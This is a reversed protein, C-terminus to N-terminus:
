EAMFGGICLGGPPSGASGDYVRSRRYMTYRPGKSSELLDFLLESHDREDNTHDHPQFAPTTFNSALLYVCSFSGTAGMKTALLKCKDDLFKGPAPKAIAKDNPGAITGLHVGDGAVDMMLAIAPAFRGAYPDPSIKTQGVPRVIWLDYPHNALYPVWDDDLGIPLTAINGKLHIRGALLSRGDRTCTPKAICESNVKGGDPGLYKPDAYNVSGAPPILPNTADVSGAIEITDGSLSLVDRYNGDFYSVNAYHTQAPTGDAYKMGNTDPMLVWLGDKTPVMAILGYLVLILKM